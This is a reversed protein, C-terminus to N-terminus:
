GKNEEVEPVIGPKSGLVGERYELIFLAIYGM